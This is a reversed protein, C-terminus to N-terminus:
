VCYRGAYCADVVAALEAENSCYYGAQYAQALRGAIARRPLPLLTLPPAAAQCGHSRCAAQVGRRLAPAAAQMSPHQRAPASAHQPAPAGGGRM